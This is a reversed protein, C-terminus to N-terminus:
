EDCLNCSAKCDPYLPNGCATCGEPPNSYLENYESDDPDDWIEYGDREWFNAGCECRWDWKSAKSMEKGCFKCTM